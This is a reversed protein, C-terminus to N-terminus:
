SRTKLKGGLWVCPLALIVLSISFWAPTIGWTAIAAAIGLAIGVIGLAIAHGMPRNPALTATVYGGVLMYISRYVIALVVMWVTDFGQKRQM